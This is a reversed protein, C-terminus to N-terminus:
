DEDRGILNGRERDRGVLDRISGFYSNQATHLASIEQTWEDAELLAGRQLIEAKLVKFKEAAGRAMEEIDEGEAKRQRLIDAARRLANKLNRLQVSNKALALLHEKVQRFRAITIAIESPALLPALVANVQEPTVRSVRHALELDVFQPLGKYKDEGSSGKSADDNKVGFALDNDIAHVKTQKDDGQEIFYNGAHRDVQGTIADFLQLGSLGRMIEFDSMDFDRYFVSVDGDVNTRAEQPSKGKAKEMVTGFVNNHVAFKTKPVLDFGFLRDLKYVAVARNSFNGGFIPIGAKDAAPADGPAYERQESKFYGTGISGPGEATYGLKYVKSFQGGGVHQAEGSEHQTVYKGQKSTHTARMQEDAVKYSFLAEKINTDFDYWKRQTWANDAKTFHEVSKNFTRKGLVYETSQKTQDPFHEITTRTFAIAKQLNRLEEERKEFGKINHRGMKNIFEPNSPKIWGLLMDFPAAFGKFWLRFKNIVDGVNNKTAFLRTMEDKLFAVYENGQGAALEALLISRFIPEADAREPKDALELNLLRRAAKRQKGHKYRGFRNKERLQNLYTGVEGSKDSFPKDNSSTMYDLVEDDHGTVRQIRATDTSRAVKGPVAGQQITHVAEHATLQINSPSQGKGYYIHNKHTFAKAGLDSSLKEAHSGTHVKVGSLDAGLKPEISRRVGDPMSTGGSQSRRLDNELSSDVAGGALGIPASRQLTPTRSIQAQANASIAQQQLLRTTARNGITRQLMLVDAPLLRRPATIARAVQNDSLSMEAGRISPDPQRPVSVSKQVPKAPTQQNNM